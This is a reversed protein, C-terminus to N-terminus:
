KLIKHRNKHHCECFCIILYKGTISDVYKGTCEKHDDTLCRTINTITNDLKIPSAAVTFHKKNENQSAMSSIVMKKSQLVMKIIM